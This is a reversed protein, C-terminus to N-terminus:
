EEEYILDKLNKAAKIYNEVSGFNESLYNQLNECKFPASAFVKKNEIEEIGYIAYKELLNELIERAKKEYKSLKKFAKEKRSIRTKIAKGYALHLLIDFEDMDKFEDRGRLEKILIGQSELEGIFKTKNEADQWAKIFTKLSKYTKLINDKSYQKFDSTIVVFNGDEDERILQELVESKYVPIGIIYIKEVDPPLTKGSSDKPISESYIEIELGQLAEKLLESANGSFDLITFYEKQGEVIRTGRGIIQKFESLSNINSDIAIVKVMRTDVGTTLLKSTTVITPYKENDDIFKEILSEVEDKGEKSTIRAIYNTNEAQKDNNLNILEQKLIAAHETNKCFVITKAYPNKLMYKLYNTITEAVFHSYAEIHIRNNFEKPKYKQKKPTNGNIDKDCLSLTYGDKYPYSTYTNLVMPALFGDSIGDKLDYTYAPKGFYGEIEKTSDDSIFEERLERLREQPIEGGSFEEQLAQKKEKYLPNDELDIKPTATMGIQAASEFYELIERWVSNARMSGRHCEDIFILDFYDKSFEKYHQKKGSFDGNEEDKFEIFQQYLAFHLTQSSQLKHNKVKYAGNFNKFDNRLSQDILANRDALYLIRPSKNKNAQLFRHCIQSAIYTKGTGTALILLIRNQGKAIAEIAKNIAAIQYYRPTKDRLDYSQLILNEKDSPIKLAKLHRELLEQPSPFSDLPIKKQKHKILDYEIFCEGNSSYAFNVGQMKAYAIAQSLGDHPTHTSDKAEIIALPIGSKYNLLFDYRKKDLRKTGKQVIKIQGASIEYDRLAIREMKIDVLNWGAKQLAPTILKLKVETENLKKGM